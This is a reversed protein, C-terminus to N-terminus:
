RRRDSQRQSVGTLGATVADVAAWHQFKGRRLYGNVPALGGSDAHSTVKCKNRCPVKPHSKKGPRTGQRWVDIGRRLNGYRYGKHHAVQNVKAPIPGHISRRVSSVTMHAKSETYASSNQRRTITTAVAGGTAVEHRGVNYIRCTLHASSQIPAATKNVPVTTAESDSDSAVRLPSSEM